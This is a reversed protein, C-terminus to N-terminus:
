LPLPSDAGNEEEEAAPRLATAIKPFEIKVSTGQGPESVVYMAGNFLSVRERISFLGFGGERGPSTLRGVDFGKGDDSVHLTV